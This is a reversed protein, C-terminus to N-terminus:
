KTFLYIHKFWNNKMLVTKKYCSNFIKVLSSHFFILGVKLTQFFYGWETWFCEMGVGLKLVWISHSNISLCKINLHLPPPFWSFKTPSKFVFVVERHTHSFDYGRWLAYVFEGYITMFKWYCEPANWLRNSANLILNTLKKQGM